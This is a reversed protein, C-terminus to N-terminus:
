QGATSQQEKYYRYIERISGMVPVALIMGWIGFIFSFIIMGAFVILPNLDMKKGIVLPAILWNQLLQILIVVGITILMFQWNPIDFRTSGFALAAAASLVGSIIPGVNPIIECIAAALALIIPFRIGTLSGAGWNVFFVFLIILFQGLLYNWWVNGIRKILM